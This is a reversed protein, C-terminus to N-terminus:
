KKARKSEIADVANQYRKAPLDEISEIKFYKLFKPLDVAVEAILCKLADAQAQTVTEGSAINGDDDGVAINFIMTLLYRRGYTVASGTAPTKTMVDGGKAM